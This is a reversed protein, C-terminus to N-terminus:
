PSKKSLLSPQPSVQLSVSSCFLRVVSSGGVKLFGGGAGQLLEEDLHGLEQREGDDLAAEADKLPVLRLVLLRVRCLNVRPRPM